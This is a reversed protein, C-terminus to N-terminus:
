SFLLTCLVLIVFTILLSTSSLRAIELYRRGESWNVTAWHTSVNGWLNCASFCSHRWKQPMIRCDVIEHWLETKQKGPKSSETSRLLHSTRSSIILTRSSCGVKGDFAIYWGDHTLSFLHEPQQTLSEIRQTGVEWYVVLIWTISKHRRPRLTNIKNLINNESKRFFTIESIWMYILWGPNWVDRNMRIDFTLTRRQNHEFKLAGFSM